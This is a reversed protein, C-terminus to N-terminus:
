TYLHLGLTCIFQVAPVSLVSAESELFLQGYLLTKVFTMGISVITHRDRCFHLSAGARMLLGTDLAVHNSLPQGMAARLFIAGIM